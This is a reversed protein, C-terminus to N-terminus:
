RFLVPCESVVEWGHQNIRVAHSDNGLDYYLPNDKKAIRNQLTRTEDSHYAKGELAAVASSFQQSSLGKEKQEWYLGALWRHFTASKLPFGIVPKQPIAIYPEKDQDLFLEVNQSLTLKILQEVITQKKQEAEDGVLAEADEVIENM